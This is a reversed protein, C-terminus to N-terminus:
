EVRRRSGARVALVRGQELVDEAFRGGRAVLAAREGETYVIVDCGIGVGSFHRAVPPIRDLFPQPTDRVVIFLDVDSGPRAEGRAFSGFLRVELVEPHSEVLARARRRLRELM